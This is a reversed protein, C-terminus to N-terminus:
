EGRGIKAGFLFVIALLALVAVAKSFTLWGVWGLAVFAFGLCLITLVVCCGFLGWIAEGIADFM